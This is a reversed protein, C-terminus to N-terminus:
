EELFGEIGQMVVTQNKIDIKRVFEKVAPIQVIRGGLDIEWIDQAPYKQVDHITGILEGEPTEVKCGILDDIYVHGRPPKAREEKPVFLYNGVVREAATRDPTTSLKVVCGKHQIKIDEIGVPSANEAVSGLFAKKLHLLREATHTLLHAHLYGKIGFPAGLRAIAVLDAM